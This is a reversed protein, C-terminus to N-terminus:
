LRVFSANHQNWHKPGNRRRHAVQALLHLSSILVYKGCDIMLWYTGRYKFYLIIQKVIFHVLSMPWTPLRVYSTCFHILTRKLAVGLFIYSYLDLFCHIWLVCFLESTCAYIYLIHPNSMTFKELFVPLNQFSHMWSFMQTM